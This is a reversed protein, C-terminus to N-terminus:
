VNNDAKIKNKTSPNTLITEKFHEFNEIECPVVIRGNPNFINDKKSKIVIRFKGINISKIDDFYISNFQNQGTRREMKRFTYKNWFNLKEQSFYKTFRNSEVGFRLAKPTNISLLSFIFIGALFITIGWRIKSVLRIGTDINTGVIILTFIIFLPILMFLTDYIAKKLIYRWLLKKDIKYEQTM